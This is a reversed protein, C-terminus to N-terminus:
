QIDTFKVCRKLRTGFLKFNYLCRDISICRNLADWFNLLSLYNISRFWNFKFVHAFM